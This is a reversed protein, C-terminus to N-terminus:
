RAGGLQFIFKRVRDGAKRLQSIRPDRRALRAFRDADPPIQGIRDGVRDGPRGGLDFIALDRAAAGATAVGEHRGFQAAALRRRGADADRPVAAEVLDAALDGLVLALRDAAPRPQAALNRVAPVPFRADTVALVLLVLPAAVLDVADVQRLRQVGLQAGVTGRAADIGIRAGRAAHRDVQEAFPRDGGVRRRPDAGIQVLLQRDALIGALREDGALQELQRGARDTSREADIVALVALVRLPSMKDCVPPVVPLATGLKPPEIRAM